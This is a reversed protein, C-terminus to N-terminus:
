VKDQNILLLYYDTFLITIKYAKSTMTSTKIYMNDICTGGQGESAPRTIGLFCPLYEYELLNNLFEQAIINEYTQINKYLIDINFDSIICHNKINKNDQLYKKISLMFETKSIDHSRYIASIKLIENNNINIDTVLFTLRDIIIKYTEQIIDNKIYRM